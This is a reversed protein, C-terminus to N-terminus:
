VKERRIWLWGRRFLTVFIVSGIVTFAAFISAHLGIQAFADIVKDDMGIRIGMTFLLAFLCILQVIDLRHYLEKHVLGKYSLVGGVILLGLYLLISSM